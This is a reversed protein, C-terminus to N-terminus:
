CKENFNNVTSTNLWVKITTVTFSAADQVHLQKIHLHLVQRWKM